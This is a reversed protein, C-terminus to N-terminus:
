EEPTKLPMGVVGNVPLSFTVARADTHPGAEAVIAEMISCRSESKTVILILDKEPLIAVGFFKEMEKAGTGRAHVITGGTAGAKKATEMVVDAFGRNAIVVILDHEGRGEMPEEGRETESIGLLDKVARASCASQVPLTFAIGRNPKDPGVVEGVRKLLVDSTESAMTSFLLTKETEGLGLLGLIQSNATGRGLTLLNFTVGERIFLDVVQEDQGRDFITVMLVLPAGSSREHLM